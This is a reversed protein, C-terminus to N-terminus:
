CYIATKAVSDVKICYMFLSNVNKARVVAANKRGLGLVDLKVVIESAIVDSCLPLM